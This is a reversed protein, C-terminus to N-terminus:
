GAIFTSLELCWEEFAIMFIGPIGLRFFIGWESLAAAFDWGSFFLFSVM